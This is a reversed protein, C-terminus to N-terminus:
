LIYNLNGEEEGKNIYIRPVRKGILCTIEYNITEMKDALEEVPIYGEGDKGFITVTQGEKAAKIDTIDIMTMDM